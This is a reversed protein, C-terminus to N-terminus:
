RGVNNPNIHRLTIPSDEEHKTTILSKMGDSGESAAIFIASKGWMSGVFFLSTAEGSARSEIM